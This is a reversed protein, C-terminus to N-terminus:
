LGRRRKSNYLMTWCFRILPLTEQLGAFFDLNQLV